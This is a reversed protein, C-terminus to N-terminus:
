LDGRTWTYGFDSAVLKKRAATEQGLMDYLTQVNGVGNITMVTRTNADLCTRKLEDRSCEGLGKLRTVNFESDLVEFIQKMQWFMKPETKIKDTLKTSVFITYSRWNYQELFPLIHYGIENILRDVPVSYEVSGTILTLVNSSATFICDSLQLRDKIGETNVCLQGTTNYYIFDTCHCMEEVIFPDVALKRSTDELMFAVYKIFYVLDRYASGTVEILPQGDTMVFLAIQQQYMEVRFDDLAKQDRLYKCNTDDDKKNKSEKSRLVYLPPMALKVRGQDLILPNIKYFMGILLDIISLGDPDADAMIVIEKFNMNDLNTDRPHVGILRVLDTFVDDKRCADPSKVFTNICKGRLEYVAQYSPDRLQIVWNGSSLGEVINLTAVSKDRTECAFYCDPRSLEFAVNKLSKGTNLARNLSQSFKKTLDEQILEFLRELVSDDVRDLEHALATSYIRSFDLSVFSSKTQSIFKANKYQANVYGHFPLNYQQEFFSRLDSNDEDLYQVLRSKIVNQLVVIHSATPVSIINGNVIGLIGSEREPHATLGLGIDYGIVDNPDVLSIDKHFNYKWVTPDNIKCEQRSYDFMSVHDPSQYIVPGNFETIYKWQDKFPQNFWDQPLLFDARYVTFKVNPRFVSMFELQKITTMLGREDTMYLKTEKVISPDTEYIVTTGNTADNKDLPKYQKYEKTVGQEFRVGAFGDPRKSISIFHNSLANTLKSGCGWCGSSLGYYASADYKGSTSRKTYVDELKDLPIGRGHDQVAVQYNQGDTFFIMKIHYIINPDIAEDTANLCIELFLQVDTDIGGSGVYQSSNIRYDELATLTRINSSDYKPITGM